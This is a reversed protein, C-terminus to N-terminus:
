FRQFISAFLLHSPNDELRLNYMATFLSKQKGEKKLIDLLLNLNQKLYKSFLHVCETWFSAWVELHFHYLLQRFFARLRYDCSKRTLVLVRVNTNLETQFEAFSLMSGLRNSSLIITLQEKQIKNGEKAREMMIARHM